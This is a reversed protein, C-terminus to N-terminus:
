KRSEGLMNEVIGVLTHGILIHMEQIRATTSSSVIINTSCIKSIKGGDNGLLGITKIGRNNAIKIANYINNSNGSTSIGILCDNERGVASLQRAFINEFSYDNGICTLASTDTTLAISSIPDRDDIFRGVFEAAIHQSDAASGGNGCLFITGGVSVCEFLTKAAQNVEEDLGEMKELLIQHELLNDKFIDSM